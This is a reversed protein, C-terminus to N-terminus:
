CGETKLIEKASTTKKQKSTGEGSTFEEIQDENHRRHDDRNRVEQVELLARDWSAGSALSIKLTMDEHDEISRSTGEIKGSFAARTLGRNTQVM